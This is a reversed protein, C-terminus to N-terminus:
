AWKGMAADWRGNGVGGACSDSPECNAAKSSAVALVGTVVLGGALWGCLLAEGGAGAAESLVAWAATEVLLLLAEVLLGVTEALSM